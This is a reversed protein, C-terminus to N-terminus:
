KVLVMLAIFETLSRGFHHKWIQNFESAPNKRQQDFFQRVAAQLDKDDKRFAWGIEDTPGLPFAAKANRLQHRAAWIAIDSDTLTFDATEDEVAAFSEQTGLLTLKVPNAAWVTHNQTELWGHFSTNKEVAARKGALDSTGKIQAKMPQSVIAMMRSPFLVVFDLKKLRWENKTLNAPYFDCKGSALLEPTYTAARETKGDKNFFQEDWDVRIYKARVEKGLSQAFASSTEFVAGAFKCKDKCAAPEFSAQAPHIPAICIRLEKTKKIEDLSRAHCSRPTASFILFLCLGSIVARYSTKQVRAVWNMVM